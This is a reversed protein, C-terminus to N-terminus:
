KSKKSPRPVVRLFRVQALEPAIQEQLSNALASSESMQAFRGELRSRQANLAGVLM